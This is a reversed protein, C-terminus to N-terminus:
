WPRTGVTGPNGVDTPAQAELTAGRGQPAEQSRYDADRASMDQRCLTLVALIHVPLRWAQSDRYFYFLAM